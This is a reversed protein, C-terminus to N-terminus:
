EEETIVARRSASFGLLTRVPYEQCIYGWLLNIIDCNKPFYLMKNHCAGFKCFIKGCM